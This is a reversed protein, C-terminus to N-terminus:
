MKVLSNLEYVPLLWQQGHSCRISTEATALHGKGVQEITVESAIFKGLHLFVVYSGTLLLVRLTERAIDHSSTGIIGLQLHNGLNINVVIYVSVYDQLYPFYEFEKNPEVKNLEQNLVLKNKPEIPSHIPM